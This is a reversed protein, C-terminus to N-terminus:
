FERARTQHQQTGLDEPFQAPLDTDRGLKTQPHGTLVAKHGPQQGRLEPTTVIRIGKSCFM